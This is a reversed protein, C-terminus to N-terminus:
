RDKHVGYKHDIKGTTVSLPMNLYFFFVGGVLCVMSSAWTHSSRRLARHM